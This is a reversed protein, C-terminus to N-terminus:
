GFNRSVSDDTNTTLDTYSVTVLSRGGSGKIVTISNVRMVKEINVLQNLAVNISNRVQAEYTRGMKTPMQVGMKPVATSSAFVTILALLVRQRLPPMQQFQKTATDIAYDKSSPDIFRCGSGPTPLPDASLPTGIGFPGFGAPFLGIGPM